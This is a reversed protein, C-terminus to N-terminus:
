SLLHYQLMMRLALCSPMEVKIHRRNKSRQRNLSLMEAPTIAWVRSSASNKNLLILYAYSLSGGLILASLDAFVSEARSSVNELPEEIRTPVDIRPLM